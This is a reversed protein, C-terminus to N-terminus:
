WWKKFISKVKNGIAKGVGSVVKGAVKAGEWAATAATKVGSIAATGVLKGTNTIAEGLNKSEMLQKNAASVAAVGSSVADGVTKISQSVQNVVEESTVVDAVLRMGNEVIQGAAYGVAAGIIAGGVPMVATLASGLAVSVTKQVASGAFPAGVDLAMGIASTLAVSSTDVIKDKKSKSDDAWIDNIKQLAVASDAIGTTVATAVNVVKDVKSAIQDVAYVKGVVPTGKIGDVTYRTGLGTGNHYQQVLKNFYSARKFKSVIVYGDKVTFLVKTSGTVFKIVKSGTKVSKEITKAKGEVFEAASKVASLGKAINEHRDSTDSKAVGLAGNDASWDESNGTTNASSDVWLDFNSPDKSSLSQEVKEFDRATQQLYARCRDLRWSYRTLADAVILNPLGLLSVKKYLGDLDEDLKDIRKNVKSIRGAYENLKYTDVIIDSM